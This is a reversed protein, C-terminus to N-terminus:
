GEDSVGDCQARCFVGEEFRVVRVHDAFVTPFSVRVRRARSRAGDNQQVDGARGACQGSKEGRVAGAFHYNANYPVLAEQLAGVAEYPMMAAGNVVPGLEFLKAFRKRAEDEEGNYFVIVGVVPVGTPGKNSMVWATAEKETANTHMEEVATIVAPILPPPYILPGAFVHSRQPHLKYVFETVCGFNCGGGRIAWFLDPHSSENV